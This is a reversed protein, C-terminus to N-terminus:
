MSSTNWFFNTDQETYEIDELKLFNEKNLKNFFFNLLLKKGFKDCM